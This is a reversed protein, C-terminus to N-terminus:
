WFRICSVGKSLGVQIKQGHELLYVAQAIFVLTPLCVSYPIITTHVPHGLLIRVNKLYRIKAAVVSIIM